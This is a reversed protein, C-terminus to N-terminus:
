PSGENGTLVPLHRTCNRLTCRRAGEADVEVITVSTNGFGYRQERFAESYDCAEIASVLMALAWGHSVAIVRDGAHRAVIEDFAETVRKRVDTTSEGASGPMRELGGGAIWRDRHGPFRAEIEEYLVGKWDGTDLERLRPEPMPELRLTEGITRATEMTRALDSAYLAAFPGEEALRQAVLRAQARGEDSLPTDYPQYRRIRNGPTEGHRVLYVTTQMLGGEPTGIAV